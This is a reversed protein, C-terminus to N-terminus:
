WDLYCGLEALGVRSMTPGLEVGAKYALVLQYNPDYALAVMALARPHHLNNSMLGMSSVALVKIAVWSGLLDM